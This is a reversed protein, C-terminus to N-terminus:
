AGPESPQSRDGVYREPHAAFLEACHLSCFRFTQGAYDLSGACSRPDLQMRCVPDVVLPAGPNSLPCAYIRVPETVNRLHALGRDILGVRQAASLADYVAETLLVDGAGAFATVRAAVNVTAGLWDDGRRVAPGRNMGVRVDPHGHRQAMSGALERAIEVAEDSSELRLMLADGISKVLEGHGPSLRTKVQATFAAVLDAAREDGHAETLATFGAIDAFLFTSDSGM